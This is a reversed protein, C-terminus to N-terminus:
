DNKYFYNIIADFFSEYYDYINRNENIWSDIKNRTVTFM